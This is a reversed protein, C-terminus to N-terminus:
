DLLMLQYNMQTNYCALLLLLLAFIKGYFRCELKFRRSFPCNQSLIIKTMSPIDILSRKQETTYCIMWRFKDYIIQFQYPNATMNAIIHNIDVYIHNNIHYYLYINSFFVLSSKKENSPKSTSLIQNDLYNEILLLSAQNTIYRIM